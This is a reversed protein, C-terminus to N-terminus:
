RACAAAEGMLAAYAALDEYNDARHAGQQSRVAKLLVLFLWGQEPTLRIGTIAAFAEVVAPVSREGSPRDYTVARDAIHGIAARLIGVPAPEPPTYGVPEDEDAQRWAVIDRDDKLHEWRYSGARDTDESGDRLRVSVKMASAVPITGGNWDLWKRRPRTSPIELEPDQEGVIGSADVVRYAVIDAEHPSGSRHAWNLMWATAEGEHGARTRYQVRVALNPFKGGEWVTWESM